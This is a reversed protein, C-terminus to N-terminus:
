RSAERIQRSFLRYLEQLEPQDTLLQEHKDLTVQDGRIAPGTQTNEPLFRFVKEVHERILPEYIRFDLGVDAPLQAAAIRFLHNTFNNVLVAGLHLRLRDESALAYVRRSLRDALPRLLAMVPPPGELFLPVEAYETVADRTFSQMPYCVGINPGLPALADLGISGSTHVYCAEPNCRPALQAALPAIAHDSVALFILDAAALSDLQAGGLPIDYAQRYAQAKEADRSLIQIVRIGAQQLNPILSWALNGAGIIAATTRKEDM